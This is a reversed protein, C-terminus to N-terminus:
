RYYNSFRGSHIFGCGISIESVKLTNNISKLAKRAANLRVARLYESPTLSIYKKFVRELTREQIFSAKCIDSINIPSLVNCNILKKARVLSLYDGLVNTQDLSKNTSFLSLILLPLDQELVTQQESDSVSKQHM